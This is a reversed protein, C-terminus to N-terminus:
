AMANRRINIHDSAVNPLSLLESFENIIDAEHAQRYARVDTSQAAAGPLVHSITLASLIFIALALRQM